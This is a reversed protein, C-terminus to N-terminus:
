QYLAVADLVVDRRTGSSEPVLAYTHPTPPALFTALVVRDHRTASWTSVRSVHGDGRKILLVGCTPCSREVVEDVGGGRRVYAFRSGDASSTLDFITKGGEDLVKVPDTLDSDARFVSTGDTYLVSGATAAHSPVAPVVLASCLLGAVLLVARKM